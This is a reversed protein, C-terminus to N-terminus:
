GKQPKAYQNMTKQLYAAIDPPIAPVYAAFNNDGEFVYVPQLYTKNDLSDFYAIYINRIVAQNSNKPMSAVYGSGSNLLQWAEPGNIIPYTEFQGYVVEAYNYEASVVKQGRERSYYILVRALGKNPDIPKVPIKDIKKRFLDVQVFDAESPSIVQTFNGGSYRLFMVKNDGDGLDVPLFGGGRLYSKATNVTEPATPVAPTQLFNPDTEWNVNMTFKDTNVDLDLVSRQPNSLTWRFTSAGTQEPDFVFGLGAAQKKARELNLFGSRNPPIFYVKATPGWTPITNGVTELKYTLNVSGSNPALIPKLVGYGMTPLPPKPPNMENYFQIAMGLVVKGVILVVLFVAGAAILKRTVGAAQTLSAM